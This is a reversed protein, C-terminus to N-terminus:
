NKPKELVERQYREALRRVRSDRDGTGAVKGERYLQAAAQRYSLHRQEMLKGLEEFLARDGFRDIAGTKPGRRKPAPLVARVDAYVRSTRLGREPDYVKLRNPESEARKEVDGGGFVYLEGEIRDERPIDQEPGKTGAVGILRGRLRAVESRVSVRQTELAWLAASVEDPSCDRTEPYHFWDYSNITTTSAPCKTRFLRHFWEVLTLRVTNSPDDAM